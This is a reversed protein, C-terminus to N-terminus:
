RSAAREASALPKLDGDDGSEGFRLGCCVIRKRGSDAALARPARALERRAAREEPKTRLDPRRDDAASGSDRTSAPPAAGALSRAAAVPPHLHVRFWLRRSGRADVRALLQQPARRAAVGGRELLEETEVALPQPPAGAGPKGGRQKAADVSRVDDLISQEVGHAPKALEIFKRDLM